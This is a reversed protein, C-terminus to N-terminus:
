VLTNFLTRIALYSLSSIHKSMVTLCMHRCQRWGQQLLVKPDQDTTVNVSIWDLRTLYHTKKLNKWSCIGTTFNCNLPGQFLVYLNLHTYQRLTTHAHDQLFDLFLVLRTGLISFAKSVPGSIQNTLKRM